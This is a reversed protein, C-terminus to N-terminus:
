SGAVKGSAHFRVRSPRLFRRGRVPRVLRAGGCPAFPVVRRPALWDGRSTHSSCGALSSVFFMSRQMRHQLRCWHELSPWSSDRDFFPSKSLNGPWAGLSRGGKSSYCLNQNSALDPIADINTGNMCTNNFTHSPAGFDHYRTLLASLSAHEIACSGFRTGFGDPLVM